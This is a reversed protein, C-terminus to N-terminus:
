SPIVIVANACFALVVLWITNSEVRGGDIDLIFENGIAAGGALTGPTEFLEGM